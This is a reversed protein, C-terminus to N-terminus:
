KKEPVLVWTNGDWTHLKGDITTHSGKKIPDASAEASKGIDNSMIKIDEEM